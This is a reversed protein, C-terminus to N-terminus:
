KSSCTYWTGDVSREEHENRKQWFYIYRFQISSISPRFLSPACTRNFPAETPISGVVNKDFAFYDVTSKCLSTISVNYGERESSSVLICNFHILIGITCNRPMHEANLSHWVTYLWVEIADHLHWVKMIKYVTAHLIHTDRHINRTYISLLLYLKRYVCKLEWYHIHNNM